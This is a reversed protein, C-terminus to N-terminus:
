GSRSDCSLTIDGSNDFSFRVHVILDLFTFCTQLNHYGDTRKNLINLFLNIKAYSYYQKAPIPAM